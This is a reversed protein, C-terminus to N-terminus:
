VCLRSNGYLFPSENRKYIRLGNSWKTMFELSYSPICSAEVEEIIARGIGEAERNPGTVDKDWCTFTDHFALYKTAKEKHLVLEAKLQEYTHLTDFFIMDPSGIDLKPDLSSSLAFSWNKGTEMKKLLRVTNSEEIDVSLLSGGVPLGSLISCTSFCDRTGFEVVYKCNSAYWELIPLHHLIDSYNIASPKKEHPGCSVHHFYDQRLEEFEM